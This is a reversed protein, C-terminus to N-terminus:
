NKVDFWGKECMKQYSCTSCRENFSPYFLGMDTAKVIIDILHELQKFDSEDRITDHRKGSIIGHYVIREENLKMLKRFAYSAATLKWDRRIHLFPMNREDVLFETMRIEERGKENRAVEVLDITGVLTHQGIEVEYEYNVMIPTGHNDKFFTHAKKLLEWGQKEKIRHTDRWSTSRFRIDEHDARPKLWVNGWIKSVNAVSPYFGDQIRHFIYFMSKHLAEDYLEVVSNKTPRGVKPQPAEVNDVHKFQYLTPCSVFDMIETIHIRM